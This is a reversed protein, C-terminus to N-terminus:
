LFNFPVFRAFYSAIIRFQGTFLLFALVLMTAGSVKQITPLFRSLKNFKDLSKSWMLAVLLFPLALGMSYIFLMFMGTYFTDAHSSLILISSLILGICPTWGAGFIFGLIVSNGFSATKKKGITIRKEKYLFSLSIVGLMQLGFVFIIIGGIQELLTRNYSFIQGIATSSAGFIMFIITFGSIFGLSSFLILRRDADIQNEKISTGTIQALYAPVLPLVCPSLFSVLGAM